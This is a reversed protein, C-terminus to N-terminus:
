TVDDYEPKVRTDMGHGKGYLAVTWFETVTAFRQRLPMSELTQARRKAGQEARSHRGLQRLRVNCLGIVVFLGYGGGFNESPEMFRKREAPSVYGHIAFGVM